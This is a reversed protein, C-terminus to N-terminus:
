INRFAPFLIMVLVIVLMGAMPILLKTGAEEGLRKANEKREEFATLAEQELMPLVSRSGKVINQELLGSFRLYPLLRCRKGFREYATVESFGNEIERLTICMEEYVFRKQGGNKYNNVVKEWARRMTLGAELLLLLKSVLEPYDNLLEKERDKVRKKRTEKGSLAVLLVAATMLFALKVASKDGPIKWTLGIGDFESPLEVWPKSLDAEGSLLYTRLRAAFGLDAVPGNVLLPLLTITREEEYAKATVKIEQVIGDAPRERSTQTGDYSLWTYDTPEWTLEIVTGPVNKIFDIDGSVARGAPYLRNLYAEAYDLLSLIGETEPMQERVTLGIKGSVIGNESKGSWCIDVNRSGESTEPRLLKGDAMVNGAPKKAICTLVILFVAILGALLCKKTQGIQEARGCSESDDGVYLEAFVRAEQARVSGPKLRNIFDTIKEAAKDTINGDKKM